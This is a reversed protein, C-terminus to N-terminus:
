YVELRSEKILCNAVSNPNAIISILQNLPKMDHEDVSLM